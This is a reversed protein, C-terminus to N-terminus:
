MQREMVGDIVDYIAGIDNLISQTRTTETLPSFMNGPEYRNGTEIAIYLHGGLFGFRINEGAVSNELDVLRQMFVPDLLVRAEVQDTGYAEFIDEFVPDVLGVRKMDGRRKSNFWGGDRLVVTRGLFKRNFEIVLIQGRFVTSWYDKDDRRRKEELHAEHFKFNAGHAQGSILDEYSSRDYGAPVLGLSEFQAMHPPHELEISFSCGLYECIGGVITQKTSSSVGSLASHGVVGIAVGTLVTIIFYAPIPWKLYWALAAALAAFVVLWPVTRKIKAIGAQRRVEGTELVPLIEADYFASFGKFEPHHEDFQHM